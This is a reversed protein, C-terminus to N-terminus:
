TEMSYPSWAEENELLAEVQLSVLGRSAMCRGFFYISSAASLHAIGIRTAQM